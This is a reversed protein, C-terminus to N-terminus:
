LGDRTVHEKKILVKNKFYFREEALSINDTVKYSWIEDSDYKLQKIDTIIKSPPGWIKYIATQSRNSEDPLPDNWVTSCGVSVISILLLSNKRFTNM